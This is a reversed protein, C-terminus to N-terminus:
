TNVLHCQVWLEATHDNDRLSEYRGNNQMHLIIQYLSYSLKAQKGTLIRSWYNIMRKKIVIDLPFRGLEGYIVTNHVFKSTKMILKCFKTHVLELCTNNPECGWVESGYLLIPMVCTDFLKIMIDIDLKHRRGKQVISFMAKNAKKVLERKAKHFKGNWSFVIGLYTYEEVMSLDINGFHFTPINRLRAKSRCFVMIKTKDANVAIKNDECYQHLINLNTQLDAESEAMIVTDDAYLIICLKLLDVLERNEAMKANSDLNELFRLVKGEHARFYNEIDNLFFAFLLPSLNEGQRVGTGTIFAESMDGNLSVCSKSAQYLNKIVDLIKGNVGQEVLRKWLITRNVSDFAKRYDVFACFLRRGQCLYLEIITKLVFVHDITSYGERFGAQAESIIENEEVFKTLRENVISTFLKGLCSVLTIARYNDM